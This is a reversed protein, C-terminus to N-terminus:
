FSPRGALVGYVTADRSAARKFYSRVMALDDARGDRHLVHIARELAVRYALNLAEPDALAAADPVEIGDGHAALEALVMALDDNDGAVRTDEHALRAAILALLADISRLESAVWPQDAVAPAVRTRLAEAIRDVLEPTTPRM